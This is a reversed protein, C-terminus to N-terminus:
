VKQVINWRKGRSLPRTEEIIVTDGVKYTNNENHAKYRKTVKRHKRYLPHEVLRSVAVVATKVMKDSVVTGQLTRKHATPTTM